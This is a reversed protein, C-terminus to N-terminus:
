RGKKKGATPATEPEPQPEPEPAPSTEPSNSGGAEISTGAEVGAGATEGPSEAGPAPEGNPAPDAKPPRPKGKSARPWMELFVDRHADRLRLVVPDTSEPENVAREFDASTANGLVGYNLAFMHKRAAETNPHDVGDPTRVQVSREFKM